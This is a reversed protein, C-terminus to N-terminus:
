LISVIFPISISTTKTNHHDMTALPNWMDNMYAWEDNDGDEEGRCRPERGKNPSCRGRRKRKIMSTSRKTDVGGQQCRPKQDRIVDGEWSERTGVEGRGSRGDSGGAIV